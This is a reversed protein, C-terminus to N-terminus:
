RQTFCAVVAKISTFFFHNLTKKKKKKKKLLFQLYLNLGLHKRKGNEETFNPKNINFM